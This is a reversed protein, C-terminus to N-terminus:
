SASRTTQRCDPSNDRMQLQSCRDPIDYPISKAGIRCCISKSISFSFRIRSITRPNALGARCFLCRFDLGKFCCDVTATLRLGGSTM